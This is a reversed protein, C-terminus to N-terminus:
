KESILLPLKGIMNGNLFVEFNHTGWEEFKIGRMVSIFGSQNGKSNEKKLIKSKMSSIKKGSPSIIIIELESTKDVESEELFYNTVIHIEPRM